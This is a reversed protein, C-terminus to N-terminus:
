GQSGWQKLLLPSSQRHGVREMGEAKLFEDVCSSNLPAAGPRAIAVSTEGVAPSKQPFGIVLSRGLMHLKLRFRASFQTSHAIKKERKLSFLFTPLHNFVRVGGFVKVFTVPPQAVTPIHWGTQGSSILVGAGPSLYILPFFVVLDLWGEELLFFPPQFCNVTSALAPGSFVRALWSRLSPVSSDSAARPVLAWAHPRPLLLHEDEPLLPGAGRAERVDQRIVM